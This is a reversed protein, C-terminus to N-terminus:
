SNETCSREHPSALFYNSCVTPYIMIRDDDTRARGGWTIENM